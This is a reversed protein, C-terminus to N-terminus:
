REGRCAWGSISISNKAPNRAGAFRHGVASHIPGFDLGRRSAICLCVGCDGEWSKVAKGISRIVPRRSQRRVRDPAPGPRKEPSRRHRQDPNRILL